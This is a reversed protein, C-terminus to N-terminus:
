LKVRKHRKIRMPAILNARLNAAISKVAKNTYYIGVGLIMVLIIFFLLFLGIRVLIRLLLNQFTEKVHVLDLFIVVVCPIIFVASGLLTWMSIKIFSKIKGGFTKKNPYVYQTETASDFGLEKLFVSSYEAYSKPKGRLRVRRRIRFIAITIIIPVILILLATAATFANIINEDVFPYFPYFSKIFDRLTFLFNKLISM